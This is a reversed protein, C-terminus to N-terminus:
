KQSWAKGPPLPIQAAAFPRGNVNWSEGTLSQRLRRRDVFASGEQSPQGSDLQHRGEGPMRGCIFKEVRLVPRFKREARDRLIPALATNLADNNECAKDLSSILLDMGSQSSEPTREGRIKGRTLGCSCKDAPVPQYVTITHHWLSHENLQKEVLLLSRYCFTTIWALAVRTCRHQDRRLILMGSSMSIVLFDILLEHFIFSPAPILLM